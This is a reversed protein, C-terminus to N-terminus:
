TPDLEGTYITDSGAVPQPDPTWIESGKVIVREGPAAQYTIPLNPEGGLAPTVRERYVGARVWVTDGPGAREAAHSITKFPHTETGDGQDSANPDAQNVVWTHSNTPPSETSHYKAANTTSILIWVLLCLALLGCLKAALTGHRSRIPIM